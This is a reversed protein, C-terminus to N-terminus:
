PNSPLSIIINASARGSSPWERFKVVPRKKWLLRGWCSSKLEKPTNTEHRSIARWATDGTLLPQYHSGTKRKRLKLVVVVVIHLLVVVVGVAILIYAYTPLSSQSHKRFHSTCSRLTSPWSPVGKLCEYYQGYDARGISCAQTRKCLDGCATNNVFGATTHQYYRRFTDSDSSSFSQLLCDLSGTSLDILNYDDMASYGFAWEIKGKKNAETVDAHYQRINTVTHSVTDYEYVRIAPNQASVGELTTKWPTVSPALFMSTQPTNCMGNEASCDSYFVKFSDAHQHAFFQGAIIDSHNSLAELFLENYHPYFWSINTKREFMGPPVHGFVYVHEGSQRAANMVEDFWVFQDGPDTMNETLKDQHYYYITNLCVFRLKSNGPLHMTYYGYNEFTEAASQPIWNGSVWEKAVATYFDNAHPPMQGKPYYDHNGLAPFVQTDPFHEKILRTANTVTGLVIDFNLTSVDVHPPDDRCAFRNGLFTECM